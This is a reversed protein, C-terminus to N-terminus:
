FEELIWVNSTRLNLGNVDCLNNKHSTLPQPWISSTGSRQTRWIIAHRYLGHINSGLFALIPPRALISSNLIKRIYQFKNPCEKGSLHSNNSFSMRFHIAILHLLSNFDISRSHRNRFTWFWRSTLNKSWSSKQYFSERVGCALILNGAFSRFLLNITVTEYNPLRVLGFNKFYVMNGYVMNGYYLWFFRETIHSFVTSVVKPWLHIFISINIYQFKGALSTPIILWGHPKYIHHYKTYRTCTYM